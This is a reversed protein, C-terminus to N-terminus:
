MTEGALSTTVIINADGINYSVENLNQGGIGVSLHTVFCNDGECPKETTVIAGAFRNRTRGIAIGISRNPINGAGNRIAMLGVMTAAFRRQTVFPSCAPYTSRLSPPRPRRASPPLVDLDQRMHLSNTTGTLPLMALRIAFRFV